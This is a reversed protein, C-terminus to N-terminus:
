TFIPEQEQKRTKPRLSMPVSYKFDRIFSMPPSDSDSFDHLTKILSNTEFFLAMIFAM